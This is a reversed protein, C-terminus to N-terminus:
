IIRGEQIAKDFVAKIQGQIKERNHNRKGCSFAKEAYESIVTPNDCISQLKPLIGEYDSVCFAADNEKLYEYGAHKEWCIALIACTSAMLDIIKTSFSVRTVMRYKEDMSEVHLAIDARKYVEKLEASSVSGKLYIYRDESLSSKQEDTLQEQTYIDLVMRVGERNIIQLAKGIEALSKWRNCYL